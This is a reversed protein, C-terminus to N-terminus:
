SPAGRTTAASVRPPYPTPDAALAELMDPWSPPTRGTERRYRASDLSRDIILSDDPVIEVDLGLADRALVLLDYKDIPEGGVHWAGDLSPHEDIVAAIEQALAGTTLGSFVARTFGRVTTGEQESLWGLLGRTPGLERGVISTRLTVCGEGAIEGLLKSRGYLDRADPVDDEVYGGREGSFVCDTSIQIARVGRERCAAAVEHPFLANARVVSAADVSTLQKVVGICNVVVAAGTEELARAVSAPEDIHVGAVTRAPDLIAAATGEPIQGRVTTWCEHRESLVQWAKHGLMGTGGLVLIASM